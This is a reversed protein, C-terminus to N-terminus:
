TLNALPNSCAVNWVMRAALVFEVAFPLRAIKHQNRTLTVGTVPARPSTLSECFTALNVGGCVPISVQRPRFSIICLESLFFCTEYSM